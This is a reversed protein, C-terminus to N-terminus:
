EPQTTGEASRCGPRLLRVPMSTFIVEGVVASAVTVSQSPMAAALPCWARRSLFCPRKQRDVDSRRRAHLHWPRDRVRHRHLRDVPEEVLPVGHPFAQPCRGSPRTDGHDTASRAADLQDQRDFVPQARQERLLLAARRVELIVQERVPIRDQRRM